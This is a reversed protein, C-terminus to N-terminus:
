KVVYLVEEAQESVFDYLVNLSFLVDENKGWFINGNQVYFKKFEDIAFYKLNTGKVYRHFLPLFDVVKVEGTNFKVSIMFDNIYNAFLIFVIEEIAKVENSRLNGGASSCVGAAM